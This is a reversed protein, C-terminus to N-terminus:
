RGESIGSIGGGGVVERLEAKQTLYNLHFPDATKTDSRKLQRGPKGTLSMRYTVEEANRQSPRCPCSLASCHFLVSEEEYIGLM